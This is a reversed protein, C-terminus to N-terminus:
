FASADSYYEDLSSSYDPESNTYHFNIRIIRNIFDLNVCFDDGTKKKVTFCGPPPPPATITM